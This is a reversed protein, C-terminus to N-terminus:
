LEDKDLDIVDDEDEARRSRAAARADATSAGAGAGASAGAGAYGYGDDHGYGHGADVGLGGYSATREREHRAADAEARARLVDADGARSFGGARLFAGDAALRLAHRARVVAPSLAVPRQLLPRVPPLRSASVGDRERRGPASAAAAAPHTPQRQAGTPELTAPGDLLSSCVRRAWVADLASEFATVFLESDFLTARRTAASAAAVPAPAAAPVPALGPTARLNAAHLARIQTRAAVLRAPNTALAAAADVYAEPSAAALEPLGAAALLSAAVRSGLTRGPLTVAPLGALLADAVAAPASLGFPVLLVDALRLRAVQAAPAVAPAVVVRSPDVEAAETAARVNAAAEAGSVYVWLAADPVRRLVQMWAAWTAPALKDNRDFACFVPGEAPLGAEARTLPADGAAATNDQPQASWPLYVPTESFHLAQAAAASEGAPPSLLVARAASGAPLGYDDAIAGLSGALARWSAETEARAHAAAAAGLAGPGATNPPAAAVPPAVVPDVIIYDVIGRAGTTGPFGQFTMQVPAPRLALTALNNLSHGGDTDILVDIRDRV